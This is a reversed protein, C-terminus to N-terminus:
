ISKDHNILNMIFNGGYKFDSYLVKAGRDIHAKMNKPFYEDEEIHRNEYTEVLCKILADYEGSITQRNLELGLNDTKYDDLSLRDNLKLSMSIALKALCYPQLNTSRGIEEFIDMTTKSTKLKFIM